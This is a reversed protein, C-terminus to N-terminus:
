ENEEKTDSEDLTEDDTKVEQVENEEQAEVAIAPEQITFNIGYIYDDQITVKQQMDSVSVTYDGPQLGDTRYYGFM